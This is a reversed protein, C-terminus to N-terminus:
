FTECTTEGGATVCAKGQKANLELLRFPDGFEGFTANFTERAVNAANILETRSITKEAETHNMVLFPNMWNWMQFWSHAPSTSDVMAHLALGFTALASDSLENDSPDGAWFQMQAKQASSENGSVFDSFQQAAQAPTQGPSSLAHEFALSNAQGGTFVNDQQASVDKLIQRQRATLNPFALEIIQNHIETPWKGNKDVFRLPNNHVYSYGNWSQPDEM